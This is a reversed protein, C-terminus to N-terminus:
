EEEVGIGVVGRGKGYGDEEEHAYGQGGAVEWGEAGRADVRYDGQPGFLWAREWRWGRM